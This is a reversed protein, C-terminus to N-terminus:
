DCSAAEKIAKAIAPVAGAPPEVNCFCGPSYEQRVRLFRCDTEAFWDFNIDNSTGTGFWLSGGDQPTNISTIQM